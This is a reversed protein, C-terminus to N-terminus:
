GLIKRVEEQDSFHKKETGIIQYDEHGKGAILITDGPEAISLARAIAEQRDAIILPQKGGKIVGALIQKLIKQPEETRPNDSTLIVLDAKQAAIEGMLPRKGSDRDGGCGFLAILRGITLPRLMELVKELAEPTHAYDVFLALGKKNSIAELRGPIVVVAELGNKIVEPSFGLAVACATAALLNSLNHQGLLPSSLLFDGGPTKIHARIGRRTLKVDDASIDAEGEGYTLVTVSPGIRERIKKGWPDGVPLVATKKKKSSSTLIETFLRCKAEFYDDLTEHFDLHDRSLNTFCVVDFHCGVVRDLSLAHSSVEMAVSQVGENRMTALLSQLESPEPTTTPAPRNIEGFRYNITGIVGSKQSAEKFISELLFTLSTKGNTGTVGVLNLSRSPEDYFRASLLALAQRAEKVQLWAPLPSGGPHNVGPVIKPAPDISVIGAAGRAIAEEIFLRGDTKSGPIAVFLFGKEVRKSHPTIGSITALLDGSSQVLAESSILEKLTTM